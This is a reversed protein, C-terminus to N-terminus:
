YERVNVLANPIDYPGTILTAAIDALYTGHWGDGLDMILDDIVANM